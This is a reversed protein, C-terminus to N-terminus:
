GFIEGLFKNTFDTVKAFDMARVYIREINDHLKRAEGFYNSATELLANYLKFTARDKQRIAVLGKKDIFRATNIPKNLLTKNESPVFRKEVTFLLDENPFYIAEPKSTDITDYSIIRQAGVREAYEKVFLLFRYAIDYKDRILYINKANSFTPLTYFGIDNFATQIRISEGGGSSKILKKCIRGAFAKMKEELMIGNILDNRLDRISGAASLVHFAREYCDLKKDTLAILEERKNRLKSEDWFIGLNIINERAAAYKVNMIHPATGDVVAIGLEPILVGDFSNTDASCRIYEVSLNDRMAREGIRKMFTSKGCGASGNLIYVKKYDNGVIEYFCSVFGNRTNAGAFYETKNQMNIM